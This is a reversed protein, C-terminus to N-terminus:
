EANPVNISKTECSDDDCETKTTHTGRSSYFIPDALGCPQYRYLKTDDKQDILVSTGFGCSNEKRQTNAVHTDVLSTFIIIVTLLGVVAALGILAEKM